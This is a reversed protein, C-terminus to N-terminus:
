TGLCGTVSILLPVLLSFALLICNPLGERRGAEMSGELSGGILRCELELCGREGAAGVAGAMFPNLLQWWNGCSVGGGELRYIM